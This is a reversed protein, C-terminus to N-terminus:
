FSLTMKKPPANENSMLIYICCRDQCHAKKGQPHDTTSNTQVSANTSLDLTNTSSPPLTTPTMTSINNVSPPVSSDTSYSDQDSLTHPMM